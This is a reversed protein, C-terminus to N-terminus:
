CATGGSLRHRTESRLDDLKTAKGPDIALERQVEREVIKEDIPINKEPLVDRERKHSVAGTIELNDESAIRHIDAANSVYARPDNPFRALQSMYVKGSERGEFLIRNEDKSFPFAQLALMEAMNHSEGKARMAEYEAQIQPNGSIIEFTSM